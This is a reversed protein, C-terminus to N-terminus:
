GDYRAFYDLLDAVSLGEAVFITRRLGRGLPGRVTVEFAGLVPRPIGEWIDIEGAPGVVRGALPTGGGVRRVEAHWHINAGLDQPLHLRPPAPYVPSGSPTAVGPLPDGPLLRPRAGAEVSPSRCTMAGQDGTQRRGVGSLDLHGAALEEKAAEIMPSPLRVAGFDPDPETLRDLLDLTRDVIDHAYDGGNLLFRQAPKDLQSLRAEHGPATAWTLFGEADVGPDLRRRSLLLRFYDGLCYAPIGAHMLIPGATPLPLEPFMAMGLRGIAANFARVWIGQDQPTGQFDAAEWLAPWYTGGKYGRYDTAAVGAMAAALCAPWRSLL